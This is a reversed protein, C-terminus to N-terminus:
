LQVSQNEKQQCPVKQTKVDCVDKKYGHQYKSSHYSHAYERYRTIYTHIKMFNAIINLQQYLNKTSQMAFVHINGHVICFLM